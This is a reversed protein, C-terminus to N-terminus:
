FVSSISAGVSWARGSVTFGPAGIFDPDAKVVQRPAMFHYQGHMALLMNNFFENRGLDVAASLGLVHVDTDIINGMTSIDVVPTPRLQYGTGFRLGRLGRWELSVRPNWTDRFQTFPPKTVREVGSADKTAVRLYSPEYQSWQQFAVGASLVFDDFNRQLDMEVIMPEYYLTSKVTVPQNAVPSGNLDLTGDIRQLFVPRVSQRYVLSAGTKGFNGYMGFITASNFGVDMMMRGLSNSSGLDMESVGASTLFVALSGGIYLHNPILELGLGLSGKFQVDSNGYRLNTFDYPSLALWRRFEKIPGSVSFGFGSRHDKWFPLRFPQTYGAAWLTNTVEPINATGSRLQGTRTRYEQSDLLVNTPNDMQAHVWNMAFGFRKEPIAAILGPNLVATFPNETESTVSSVRGSTMGGLGYTQDTMAHLSTASFLFGLGLIYFGIRM